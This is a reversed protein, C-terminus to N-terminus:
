KQGQKRRKILVASASLMLGGGVVTFLTTGMGGTEPLLSGSTNVITAGLEFTDGYKSIIGNATTSIDTIKGEADYEAVIEFKIPDIKNYGDPAKTETLTYEIADDLGVIEFEGNAGSIITKTCNNGQTSHKHNATCVTYINTGNTDQKKNFYIANDGKSIEFEAGELKEEKENVKKGNIKFTYDKVVKDPTTASREDDYPNNSYELNITNDNHNGAVVADENLIATYYIYLNGGQAFKEDKIGKLIDVEIDFTHGDTTPNTEDDKIKTTYYDSSLKNSKDEKKEGVYIEIDKNFTLGSTLTDHLIYKYKDYGTLNSPIKSTLRYEVTDGIQNDGVNGWNGNENHKIEKDVDPASAKLNIEAANTNHLALAAVVSQANPATDLVLYYGLPLESITVKEIGNTTTVNSSEKEVRIGKEDIYTKLEKSLKNLDTYNKVYETAFQNLKAETSVDKNEEQAKKGFYEKFDGDVSYAYNTGSVSSDFVKYASYKHGVMSTGTNKPNNSITITGTSTAFSTAAGGLTIFITLIVSLIKKIKSM